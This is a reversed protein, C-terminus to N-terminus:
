AARFCGSRRASRRAACYQTIAEHVNGFAVLDLEAAKRSSMHDRCWPASSKQTMSWKRALRREYERGRKDLKAALKTFKAAERSDKDVGDGVVYAHAMARYADAVGKRAAKAFCSFAKGTEGKALLARGIDLIGGGGSLANVNFKMPERAVVKVPEVPTIQGESEHSPHIVIADLLGDITLFLRSAVTAWAFTRVRATGVIDGFVSRYDELRDNTVCIANPIQRVLQLIQLDAEGAVLSVGNTEVFQRLAETKAPSEQHCCLWTYARVEVFFLATHGLERLSNQVTRLRNAADEPGVRGLLNATDILFTTAPPVLAYEPKHQVNVARCSRDSSVDSDLVLSLTRTQAYYKKVVVCVREGPRLAALAARREAGNGWCRPSIVGAGRGNPMEINVGAAHIAKITAVFRDGSNYSIAKM